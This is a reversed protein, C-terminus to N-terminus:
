EGLMDPEPLGSFQASIASRGLRVGFSVDLARNGALAICGPV